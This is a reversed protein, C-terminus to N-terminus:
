EEITSTSVSSDLGFKKRKCEWCTNASCHSCNYWVSEAAVGKRYCGTERCYKGYGASSTLVLPHCCGGCYPEIAERHDRYSDRLDRGSEAAQAASSTVEAVSTATDLTDVLDFLDVAFGLGPFMCHMALSAARKAAFKAAADGSM